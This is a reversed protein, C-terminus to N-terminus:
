CILKRKLSSHSVFLCGEPVVIKVTKGKRNTSNRRKSVIRKKERTTTCANCILLKIRVYVKSEVASLLAKRTM